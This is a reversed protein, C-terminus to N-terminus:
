PRTSVARTVKQQEPNNYTLTVTVLSINSSGGYPCSIVATATSGSLGVTSPVAPAASSATCPTTAQQQYQRLLTYAANSASARRQASGSDRLVTTYLQYGSGLLLMAVIISVLLEVATFGQNYRTM